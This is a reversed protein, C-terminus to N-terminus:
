LGGVVDFEPPEDSTDVKNELPLEEDYSALRAAEAAKYENYCIENCFSCGIGCPSHCFECFM